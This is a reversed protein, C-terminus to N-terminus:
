ALLDVHILLEHLDNLHNNGQHCREDCVPLSILLDLRLVLGPLHHSEEVRFILGDGGRGLRDRGAGPLHAVLGAPPDQDPVVCRVLGVQELLDLLGLLLALRVVVEGVLVPSSPEILNLVAQHFPRSNIGGFPSSGSNDIILNEINYGNFQEHSTFASGRKRFNNIRQIFPPIKKGIITNERPIRSIYCQNPM